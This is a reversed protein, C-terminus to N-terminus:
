NGQDLSAFFYSRDGSGLALQGTFMNFHGYLNVLETDFVLTQYYDNSHIAKKRGVSFAAYYVKCSEGSAGMSGKTGKLGNPGQMGM